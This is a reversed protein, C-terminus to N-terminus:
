AAVRGRNLDDDIEGRFHEVLRDLCAVLRQQQRHPNLRESTERFVADCWRMVPMNLLVVATVLKREDADYLAMARQFPRWSRAQRVEAQTPGLKPRFYRDYFELNFRNMGGSLGIAIADAHRRLIDAAVIHDETISSRDGHRSRCWRLPDFHRWGNITRATRSANPMVDEPDPYDHRM